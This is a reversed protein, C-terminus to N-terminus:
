ELPETVRDSWLSVIANSYKRHAAILAGKRTEYYVCDWVGDIEIAWKLSSACKYIVAKM